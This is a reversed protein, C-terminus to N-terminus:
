ILTRLVDVARRVEFVNCALFTPRPRLVDLVFLQTSQKDESEGGHLRAVM